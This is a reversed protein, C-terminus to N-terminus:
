RMLLGAILSAEQNSHIQRIRTEVRDPHGYKEEWLFTVPEDSYTGETTVVRFFFIEVSQANKFM